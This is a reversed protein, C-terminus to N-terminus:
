HNIILCPNKSIKLKKKIRKGFDKEIKMREKQTIVEKFINMGFDCAIKLKPDLQRFIKVESDAESEVKSISFSNKKGFIKLSPDLDFNKSNIKMRLEKIKSEIGHRRRKGNNQVDSFITM